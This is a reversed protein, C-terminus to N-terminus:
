VRRVGDERDLAHRRRRSAYRWSGGGGIADHDKRRHVVLILRMLQRQRRPRSTRRLSHGFRRHNGSSYRPLMYALLFVNANGKAFPDGDVPVRQANDIDSCSGFESSFSLACSM